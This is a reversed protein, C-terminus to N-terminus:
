LRPFYASQKTTTMEVIMVDPRMKSTTDGTRHLLFVRCASPDMGSNRLHLDPLVFDPVRTNHEGINKLKDSTGVDAVLYHSGLQGKTFAQILMRMMLNHRAIHLKKLDYHTFELLIHGARDKGQCDQLPCRMNTAVWRGPLCPRRHM